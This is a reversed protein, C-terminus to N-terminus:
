PSEALDLLEFGHDAGATMHLLDVFADIHSEGLEPPDGAQDLAAWYAQIGKLFAQQPM